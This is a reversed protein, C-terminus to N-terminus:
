PRIEVPTGIEVSAWLEDMERNNVAICGNTWNFKWHDAAWAVRDPPLGHIMVLGGAREGLREARRRDHRNPYSIRLARYFNSSPNRADVFYLGEPTRGDGEYLKTGVPQRGLAVRFTRVVAGARVISLQRAAKEVVLRDSRGTAARAPTSSAALISALCGLTWARRTLM